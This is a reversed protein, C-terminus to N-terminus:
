PKIGKTKTQFDKPYGTKSDVSTPADPWVGNHIKHGFTCMDGGAVKIKPPASGFSEEVSGGAKKTAVEKM